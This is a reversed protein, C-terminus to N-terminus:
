FYSLLSQPHFGRVEGERAVLAVLLSLGCAQTGTEWRLESKRTPTVTIKADGYNLCGRGLIGLSNPMGRPIGFDGVANFLASQPLHLCGCNWEFVM